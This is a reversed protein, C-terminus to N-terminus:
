PDCPRNHIRWGFQNSRREMAPDKEWMNAPVRGFNDCRIVKIEGHLALVPKLISVAADVCDEAAGGAGMIM